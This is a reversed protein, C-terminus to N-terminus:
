FSGAVGVTGVVDVDYGGGDEVDPLVDDDIQGIYTVGAKFLAYSLGLSATFHSFGASGEDPSLYSLTTGINLGLEDTLCFGKGASIEAYLSQDIGGDVGYYLGAGLDIGALCVAAGVGLERDADGGGSPYAYETYGISLEVGKVAVAYSGYLDIESFQNEEVAGGYDDLDLNGWAGVSFGGLGGVKMGPQLVFGDNLTVGRFVYASAADVGLSVEAANVGSCLVLGMVFGIVIKKMIDRYKSDNM